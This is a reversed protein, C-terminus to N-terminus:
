NGLEAMIFTLEFYGGLYIYLSGGNSTLPGLLPV